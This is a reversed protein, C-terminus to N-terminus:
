MKPGPVASVQSEPDVIRCRERQSQAADENINVIDAWIEYQLESYGHMKGCLNVASPLSCAFM